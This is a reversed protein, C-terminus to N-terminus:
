SKVEKVEVLERLVRETDAWGTAGALKQLRIMEELKQEIEMTLLWSITKM